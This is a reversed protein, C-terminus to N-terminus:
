ATKKLASDQEEENLQKRISELNLQLDKIKRYLTARGIKLMEAAKSANGRSRLLATKIAEVKIEDMTQLSHVASPFPLISLNHSATDTNETYTSKNNKPTQKLNNNNKWEEKSYYELPYGSNKAFDKIREIDALSSSIFILKNM